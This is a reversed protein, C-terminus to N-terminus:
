PTYFATVNGFSLDMMFQYGTSGVYQERLSALRRSNDTGPFRKVYLDLWGIPTWAGDLIGKWSPDQSGAFPMGQMGVDQKAYKDIISEDDSANLFFRVADEISRGHSQLSFLDVGQHAAAEAMFLAAGISFSTYRMAWRGRNSDYLSGDPSISDLFRVYGNRIAANFMGVDNTEIGWLMAILNRRTNHNNVRQEHDQYGATGSALEHGINTRKIERGFWSLITNKEIDSLLGLNDIANYTILASPLFTYVAWWYGSQDEDFSSMADATAWQLLERKALAAVNADAVRSLYPGWMMERVMFDTGPPKGGKFYSVHKQPLEDPVHIRALPASAADSVPQQRAEDINFFLEHPHPLSELQASPPVTTCGMLAAIWSAITLFALQVKQKGISKMSRFLLWATITLDVEFGDSEVAAWCLALSGRRIV